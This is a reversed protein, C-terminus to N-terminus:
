VGGLGQKLKCGGGEFGIGELGGGVFLAYGSPGHGALPGFLGFGEGWFGFVVFGAYVGLCFGQAGGVCECGPPRLLQARLLLFARSGQLGCRAKAADLPFETSSPPHLAQGLADFVFETQM